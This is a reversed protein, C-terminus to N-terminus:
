DNNLPDTDDFGLDNEADAWGRRYGRAEESDTPMLFSGAEVSAFGLAYGKEFPTKEEEPEETDDFDIGGDADDFGADYGRLEDEDDRHSPARDNRSDAYGDAYGKQYSTKETGEAESEGAPTILLGRAALYEDVSSREVEEIVQYKCVRMKEGNYDTSVAVVDEPWFACFVIRSSSSSNDYHGFTKVYSLAGLHLGTSCTQDPDDDVEARPMEVTKGPSNDFTGSNIDTLDARVAKFAGIRGDQFFGFQNREAFIPFRERASELPNRQLSALANFIPDFQLGQTAFGLIKDVWVGHLLSEGYTIINDAVFLLKLEPAVTAVAEQIAVKIDALGILEDADIEPLPFYLLINRINNFNLHDSQVSHLKGKAFFSVTLDSIHSSLISSM